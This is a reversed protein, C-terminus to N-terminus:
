KLKSMATEILKKLEGIGGELKSKLGDFGAGEGASKMDGFMKMLEDKKAVINKVLADIETKKDASLGEAKKKIEDIQKGVDGMQGETAKAFAAKVEDFKGKAAESAGKLADAPSAAKNESCAVTVPLALALALGLQIMSKM